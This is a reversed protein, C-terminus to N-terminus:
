QRSALIAWDIWFYFFIGYENLNKYYKTPYLIQARRSDLLRVTREM